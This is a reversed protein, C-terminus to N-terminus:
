GGAMILEILKEHPLTSALLCLEDGMWWAVANVGNRTSLYFDMGTKQDTRESGFEEGNFGYGDFMINVVLTSDGKYFTVAVPISNIWEVGGGYLKFGTSELDPVPVDFSLGEHKRFFAQLEAPDSSIIQPTLSGAQFERMVRTTYSYLRDPFRRHHSFYLNYMYYVGVLIAIVAIGFGYLARYSFRKVIVAPITTTRENLLRVVRKKFEEEPIRENYLTSVRNKLAREFKFLENCDRCDRLHQGLLNEDERTIEGDVLSTILEKAEECRM